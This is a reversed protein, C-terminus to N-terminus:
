FCCGRRGGGEGRGRGRKKKKATGPHACCFPGVGWTPICDHCVSVSGVSSAFVCQCMFVCLTHLLAFSLSVLLHVCVIIKKKVRMKVYHISFLTPPALGLFLVASSLPDCKANSYRIYRHHLLGLVVLPFFLNIHFILWIVLCNFMGKMLCILSLYFLLGQLFHPM